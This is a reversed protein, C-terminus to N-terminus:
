REDEALEPNEDINGIIEVHALDGGLSLSNGTVFQKAHWIGFYFFEVVGSGEPKRIIDGEYIEKDNVDTFGVYQGVTNPNVEWKECWDSENSSTKGTYIYHKTRYDGERAVYFGYVWQGNNTKGRFKITRM